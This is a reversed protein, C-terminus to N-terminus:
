FCALPLFWCTLFCFLYTGLRTNELISLGEEQQTEQEHLRANTEETEMVQGWLALM